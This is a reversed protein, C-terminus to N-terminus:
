KAQLIKDPVGEKLWSARSKQALLVEKSKLLRWLDRFLKKREEVEVISLLGDEGRRDLERINAVLIKISEEMKGFIVNNWEKIPTKLQKLKEKLVYGMWGEVNFSEWAEEVV